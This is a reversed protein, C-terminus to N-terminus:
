SLLIGYFFCSTLMELVRTFCPALKSCSLPPRFKDIMQGFKFIVSSSMSDSLRSEDHCYYHASEFLSEIGAALVQPLHEVVRLLLNAFACSTVILSNDM